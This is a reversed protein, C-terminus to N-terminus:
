LVMRVTRSGSSIKYELQSCVLQPNPRNNMLVIFLRILSCNDGSLVDLIQLCLQNSLETKVYVCYTLTSGWFTAICLPYFIDNLKTCWFMQATPSIFFQLSSWMLSTGLSLFSSSFPGPKLCKSMYKSLELNLSAFGNYLLCSSKM